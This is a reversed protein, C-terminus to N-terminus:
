VLHSYSMRVPQRLDPSASIDPAEAALGTQLISLRQHANDLLLTNAQDQHSLIAAHLHLQAQFNPELM